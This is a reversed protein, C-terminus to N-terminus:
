LPADVGRLRASPPVGHGQDGPSCPGRSTGWRAGGPRPARGGGRGVRDRPEGGVEGWRAAGFGAVGGGVGGWRCASAGCGRSAGGRGCGPVAHRRARPARLRWPRARAGWMV